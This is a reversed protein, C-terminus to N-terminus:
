ELKHVQSRKELNRFSPQSRPTKRMKRTIFLIPLSVIILTLLATIWTFEPIVTVTGDSSVYPISNAQPDSLKVDRLYLPISNGIATANFRIITLVGDGDVGTANGQLTSDIWVVGYTSNYHDSFTVPYFFPTQGSKELLPGEAVSTGNLATSNYYLKFEYAYLNVVGSISVNVTFVNGIANITQHPPDVFVQPFAAKVEVLGGLPTMLLAIMLYVLIKFYNTTALTNV